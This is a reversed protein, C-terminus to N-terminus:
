VSWFFNHKDDSKFNLTTSTRIPIKLFSSGNMETTEHFFM